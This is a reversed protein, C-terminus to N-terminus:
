AQNMRSKSKMCKKCIYVAVAIADHPWIKAGEPVNKCIYEDVEKEEIAVFAIHAIGGCDCFLTEQFDNQWTHKCSEKGKIVRM